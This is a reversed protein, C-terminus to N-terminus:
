QGPFSYLVEGTYLDIFAKFDGGLITPNKLQGKPYLYIVWFEKDVLEKAISKPHNRFLWVIRMPGKNNGKKFKLIEIDFNNSDLKYNSANEKAIKIAEIKSVELKNNHACSTLSLVSLITILSIIPLKNIM